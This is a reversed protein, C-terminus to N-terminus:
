DDFVTKPIDTKLQLFKRLDATKRRRTAYSFLKTFDIAYRSYANNYIHALESGQFANFLTKDSFLDVLLKELTTTATDKIRQIPAKSVLPLVVRAEELGSIYKDIEKEGPELFVNTISSDKLFYFVPEVADKEVEVLTIFKAPQHLMFENVIGTSWVVFKLERFQKRIISIIKRESDGVIPVFVPKHILAFRRRSIPTIINKDKLNYIRWRFTTEKLEPEFQRFFDFLDERSISEKGPFTQKLQHLIFDQLL